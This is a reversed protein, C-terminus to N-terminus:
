AIEFRHVIELNFVRFILEEQMINDNNKRKHFVINTHLLDVAVPFIM